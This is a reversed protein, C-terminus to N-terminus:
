NAVEIAVISHMNEGGIRGTYGNAYARCRFERATTVTNSFPYIFPHRIRLGFHSQVDSYNVWEHMKYQLNNTSDALYVWTNGYTGDASRSYFTPTAFIYITSNSSKPTITVSPFNYYAGSAITQESQIWSNTSKVQLIAGSPLDSATVGALYTDVLKAAAISGAGLRDASLTGTLKSASLSAIDADVVTGDQIKNIGTTGNITTSM